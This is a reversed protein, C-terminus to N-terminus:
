PEMGSVAPERGAAGAEGGSFGLFLLTLNSRRQEIARMKASRGSRDALDPDAGREVLSRVAPEDNAEVALMLATVGREDRSDPDVRWALLRQVRREDGARAADRLRAELEGPLL